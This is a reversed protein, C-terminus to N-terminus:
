EYWSSSSRVGCSIPAGLTHPGVSAVAPSPILDPDDVVSDVLRV